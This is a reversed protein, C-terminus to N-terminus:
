PQDMLKSLPDGALAEQKKAIENKRNDIYARSAERAIDALQLAKHIDRVIFKDESTLMRSGLLTALCAAYTEKWVMQVYDDEQEVPLLPIDGVQPLQKKTQKTPVNSM